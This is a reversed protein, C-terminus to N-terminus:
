SATLEANIRRTLNQIWGNYNKHINGGSEKLNTSSRYKISYAKSSYPIEVVASHDRLLLTAVLKNSGEDRMQWGLATGARVISSRVEANSMPKGSANTIVADNVNMIPVSGCGAIALVVAMVAFKLYSLM